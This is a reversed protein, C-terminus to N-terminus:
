SRTLFIIALVACSVGAIKTFTVEENLLLMSFIATVVLGLRGIPVVVSAEGLKLAYFLSVSGAFVISGLLPSYALLVKGPKLSYGRIFAYIGIMITSVTWTYFLVIVPNIGGKILKKALLDAFGYCFMTIAALIIAKMAGGSKSKILFKHWDSLFRNACKLVV